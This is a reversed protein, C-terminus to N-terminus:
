KSTVEPRASGKHAADPQRTAIPRDAQAPRSSGNSNNVPSNNVPSNDVPVSEKQDRDATQAEDADIARREGAFDVASQTLRASQEAM